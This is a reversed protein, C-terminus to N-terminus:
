QPTFVINSLSSAATITQPAYSGERSVVSIIYTEGATVDDFSFRGGFTTRAVRVKGSNDTLYVTAKIGSARGSATLVRGALTVGAATPALTINVFGEAFATTLVRTPNTGAVEQIVPTDDFFIRTNGVPANAAVAFNVVFFQQNNGAAITNGNGYNVTFGIEGATNTNKLVSAGTTVAGDAISQLTLKTTDYNISFGYVSEDGLADVQITVAVTGGPNATTNVVRVTRTGAQGNITVAGDAFNTQLVRTPNSGAVERFVPMDGFFISTAGPQASAAVAFTVVFFQQNNGAAIARGNGYNVTFGIRGATNTNKLVSAGTTTAGDAISQLTLKTTDYNVSFGYVSEDGLADVQITVAVTGGPNATTNVVRVERPASPADTNAESKTKNKLRSDSSNRQMPATPGGASQSNDLAAQYSSAQAVDISSVRGDGRTAAPACDARQFENSMYDTDLGAQFREMQSVDTSSVSGNGGTTTSTARPFVDAEIGQNNTTSTVVTQTASFESSDGIAQAAGGTATATATVLDGAALTATTGYNFASTGGADTTLTTSGIFTRGESSAGDAVTNSYFDIAFTTNATSNITGIVSGNTEASSILPSNQLNNTGTDADGADDTNKGVPANTNSLGSMLVGVLDIGLGTVSGNNFISNARIANGAGATSDLYIGAQATKKTATNNPGNNAILNCAGTCLGGISTGGTGGITTNSARDAIQIGNNVNGLVTSGNSAVGIFNGLVFNGRALSSNISIGNVKNGVIYNRAAATTGGITNTASEILIGSGDNGVATNSGFAHGIYNGKIVNNSAPYNFDAIISIGNGGNGLIFNADNTNEGGIQCNSAGAILIGDQSNGLDTNTGNTGIYNNKIVASGQYTTNGIVNSNVSIGRGFNGSIINSNGGVGGVGVQVNSAGDIWVGRNINGCPMTNPATGCVLGDGTINTGVYNQQIITGSGNSSGTSNTGVRIGADGFRNIAFGRIECNPAQVDFGISLSSGNQTALGNLEVRGTAASDNIIRVSDTIAPLPTVLNITGNSSFHIEDPTNIPSNATANADLIAQRLSGAGDDNFNSVTITAAQAQSASLVFFAAAILALFNRHFFSNTLKRSKLKNSSVIKIM